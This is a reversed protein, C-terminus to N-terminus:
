AVPFRAMEEWAGPEGKLIVLEAVDVHKQGAVIMGPPEKFVVEMDKLEDLIEQARAPSEATVLELRPFKPSPLSDLIFALPNTKFDFDPAPLIASKLSKFLNLPSERREFCIFVSSTEDRDVGSRKSWEIVEQDQKALNGDSPTDDVQLSPKGLQVTEIVLRMEGPMTYNVDFDPNQEMIVRLSSDVAVQSSGPHVMMPRTPDKRDAIENSRWRVLAKETKAMLDDLPTAPDIGSFIEIFSSSFRPSGEQAWRSVLETM